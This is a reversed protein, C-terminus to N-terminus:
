LQFGLWTRRGPDAPDAKVSVLEMGHLIFIYNTMNISCEFKLPTSVLKVTSEQSDLRVNASIDMLKTLM